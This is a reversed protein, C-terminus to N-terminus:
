RSEHSEYRRINIRRRLGLNTGTASRPEVLRSLGVPLSSPVVFIARHQDLRTVSFLVNITKLHINKDVMSIIFMDKELIMLSNLHINDHIYIFM